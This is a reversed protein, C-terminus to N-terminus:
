NQLLKIIVTPGGANYEDAAAKHLRSQNWGYNQPYERDAEEYRNEFDSLSAYKWGTKDGSIVVPPIVALAIRKVRFGNGPRIYIRM